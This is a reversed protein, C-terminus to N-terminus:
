YNCKNVVYEDIAQAVQKSLRVAEVVTKAGTVIDGSAFIGELTTRGYDDVAILGNKDVSIGQTNSIIDDKAGQSISIIVSDAKFLEESSNNIIVKENGSEDKVIDTEIYKIGEDVIEVPSKCFEFKIGELQAYKVESKDATINGINGRYMIYVEKSGNRLATRAVDMAANGAGIICVRDGLDYIDPNKLYDIAYHVHGLSEGKIGLTKPKWVGTGIFIAKYGDRILNEIKIASGILTNPRIKIGMNILISKLNDLISKPLRFEPIGYRLVGGIKDHAEFITIDYGKSALIIAITIGAPGSGVIAVKKNSDKKSDNKIFNLYYSSIYNEINSIQVPNGKVGRVCHGECQREHPCVLSCIVSLPNNEFLVEGAKLIEGELLMKIVDRIPTMVPCGRSCAPNKCNLCRQAEELIHSSM